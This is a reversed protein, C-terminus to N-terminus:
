EVLACAPAEPVYREVRIDGARQRARVIDYSNQLRLLTEMDVDFAKEFRLAMEGSLGSKSNLLSSLTPRSVGL